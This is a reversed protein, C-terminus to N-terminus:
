RRRGFVFNRFQRLEELRTAPHTQGMSNAPRAKAQPTTVACCQGQPEAGGLQAFAAALAEAYQAHMGHNKGTAMERHGLMEQLGRRLEEDDDEDAM